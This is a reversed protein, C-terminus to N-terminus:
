VIEAKSKMHHYEGRADLGVLDRLEESKCASKFLGPSPACEDLISAIEACAAMHLPPM